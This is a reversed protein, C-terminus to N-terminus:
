AVIRELSAKPLVPVAVSVKKDGRMVAVGDGVGVVLTLGVVDVDGVGVGTRTVGPGFSGGVIAHVAGAVPSGDLPYRM